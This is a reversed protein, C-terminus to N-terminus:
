AAATTYSRCAPLTRGRSAGSVAACRMLSWLVEILVRWPRELICMPAYLPGQPRCRVTIWM